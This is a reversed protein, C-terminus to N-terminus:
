PSRSAHRLSALGDRRPCACGVRGRSWYGRAEGLDMWRASGGSPSIVGVHVEANPTGAQPYREPEAVARTGLLSVQPYVMERGVDFQMYAIHKSDPSWAIGHDNAASDTLRTAKGGTNPMLFIEGHVVFAIRRHVSGRIVNARKHHLQQSLM